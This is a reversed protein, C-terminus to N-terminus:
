DRGSEMTRLKYWQEVNDRWDVGPRCTFITGNHKCKVPAQLYDAFMTVQRAFEDVDEDPPANFINNM